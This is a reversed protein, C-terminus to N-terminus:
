PSATSSATTTSAAAAPASSARTDPAAGELVVVGCAVPSGANGKSNDKRSYIVVARGVVSDPRGNPDLTVSDTTM